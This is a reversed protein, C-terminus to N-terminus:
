GKYLKEGRPRELSTKIARETLESVSILLHSLNNIEKNKGM